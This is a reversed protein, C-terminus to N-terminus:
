ELILPYKIILELNYKTVEEDLSEKCIQCPKIVFGDAFERIEVPDSQCHHYVHWRLLGYGLEQLIIGLAMGVKSSLECDFLQISNPQAILESIILWEDDTIGSLLSKSVVLHFVNTAVTLISSM